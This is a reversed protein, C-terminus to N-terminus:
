STTCRLGVLEESVRWLREAVSDDVAEPATLLPASRCDSYYGGTLHQVEPATALFLTTKAGEEVPVGRLAQIWRVALSALANTQGLGTAVIGPHLSNATVGSGTLRAALARTFLINALKSRGYASRASYGRASMLDAFDIQQARHARSAVTVIRAPSHQRIRPLLLNTLLFPALHNVAFTREYGDVTVARRFCVCGANNILVDLKPVIRHVCDALRRVETLSAFDAQLYRVDAGGQARVIRVAAEGRAADRGHLLVSHGLRALVRATELGIGNTAGTVLVTLM